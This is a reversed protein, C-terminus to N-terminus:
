RKENQLKNNNIAVTNQNTIHALLIEYYNQANKKILINFIHLLM